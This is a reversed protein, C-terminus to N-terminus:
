SPTEQALAGRIRRALMQAGETNMHVGDRAWGVTRWDGQGPTVPLFRHGHDICRRMVGQNLKSVRDSPGAMGVGAPIGICLVQPGEPLQDLLRDWALLVEEVSAGEALDNTGSGIVLASARAVSAYRPLVTSLRQASQGGIAFNHAGGLLSAPLVALHSDGFLLRAGPEVLADQGAHMGLTLREHARQSLRPGGWLGELAEFRWLAGDALTSSKSLGFLVLVCMLALWAFLSAAFGRVVPLLNM